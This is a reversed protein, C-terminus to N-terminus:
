KKKEEKGQTKLGYLGFPDTELAKEYIRIVDNVKFFMCKSKGIFRDRILGRKYAEKQISHWANVPHKGTEIYWRDAPYYQRIGASPEFVKKIRDPLKAEVYHMSTLRYIDVGILLGHGDNEILHHFGLSNKEVDKGWAAEKRRLRTM